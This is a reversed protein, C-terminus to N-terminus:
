HKRRVASIQEMPTEADVQNCVINRSSYIQGIEWNPNEWTTDECTLNLNVGGQAEFRAGEDVCPWTQNVRLAGSPRSYTFTAEAGEPAGEPMECDFIQTGYFFDQLQNSRGACIPKYDVAPNALTFNVYGWSNQHAPTTFIYSAHFDFKEVTWLNVGLSQDVCSEDRRAPTAPAALAAGALLISSLIAYM